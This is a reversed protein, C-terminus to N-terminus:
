VWKASRNGADSKLSIKSLYNMIIKASVTKGAGSEGSILISQNKDYKILNNYAAKCIKYIHPEKISNHTDNHYDFILKNSYINLKKFPNVVLLIPGTFTYILNNYYRKSIVNLIAPEHLHVLNILNSVEDYNSINNVHKVNKKKVIIQDDNNEVIYEDVKNDIVKGIIWLNSNDPIWLKNVEM